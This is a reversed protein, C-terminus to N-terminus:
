LPVLISRILTIKIYSISKLFFVDDTSLSNGAGEDIWQAILDIQSQSLPDNPPM